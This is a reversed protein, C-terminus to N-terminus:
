GVAALLFFVIYFSIGVASVADGMQRRKKTTVTIYRQNSRNSDQVSHGVALRTGGNTRNKRRKAGVVGSFFCSFTERQETERTSGSSIALLLDFFRQQRTDRANLARHASFTLTSDCHICASPTIGNM